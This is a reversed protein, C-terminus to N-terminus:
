GFIVRSDFEDPNRNPKECKGEETDELKPYIVPNPNELVKNM